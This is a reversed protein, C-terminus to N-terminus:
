VGIKGFSSRIYWSWLRTLYCRMTRRISLRAGFICESHFGAILRKLKRRQM